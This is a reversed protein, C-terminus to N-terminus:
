GARRMIKAHLPEVKETDREAEGAEGADVKVERNERGTEGDVLVPDNERGGVLREFDEAMRDDDTDRANEVEQFKESVFNWPDIGGPVGNVSHDARDTAREERDLHETM